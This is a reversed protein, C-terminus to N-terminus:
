EAPTSAFLFRNVNNCSIPSRVLATPRFTLPASGATSSETPAAPNGDLVTDGPGLGVETSRPMKVQDVWGNPWHM